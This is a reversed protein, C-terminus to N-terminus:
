RCGLASTRLQRPVLLLRKSRVHERLTSNLDKDTAERVGVAAAIAEVARAADNLAALDVFWAGDPYGDLAHEAVRIALRTKGSGGIGTLTLVRSEGLLQLCKALEQERGIFHTRPRPLNHPAV